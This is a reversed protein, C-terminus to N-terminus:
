SADTPGQFKQKSILSGFNIEILFFEIIYIYIYTHTHTYLQSKWNKQTSKLETGFKITIEEIM